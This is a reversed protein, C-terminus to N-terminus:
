TLISGNSDVIECRPFRHAWELQLPNGKMVAVFKLTPTSFQGKEADAVTYKLGEGPAPPGNWGPHQESARSRKSKGSKEAGRHESDASELAHLWAFFEENNVVHMRKHRSYTVIRSDTPEEGKRWRASWEAFIKRGFHTGM